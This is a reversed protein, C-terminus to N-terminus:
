IFVSRRRKLFDRETKNQTLEIARDYAAGAEDRRGVRALLDARAAHFPQYAALDDGDLTELAALGAAAGDREGIAVARNLAM